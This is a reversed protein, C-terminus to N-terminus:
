LLNVLNLCIYLSFLLLLPVPLVRVQVSQADAAAGARVAAGAAPLAAFSPSSTATIVAAIAAAVPTGASLTFIREMVRLYDDIFIQLFKFHLIISDGYITCCILYGYFFIQLRLLEPELLLELELLLEPELLLM